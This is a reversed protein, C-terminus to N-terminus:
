VAEKRYNAKRSMKAMKRRMNRKSRENATLPKRDFGKAGKAIAIERFLGAQYALYLAKRQAETQKTLVTM